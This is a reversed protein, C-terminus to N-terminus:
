GASDREVVICENFNAVPDENTWANTDARTRM